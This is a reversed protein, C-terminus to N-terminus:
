ALLAAAVADDTVLTNVYGKRLIARIIPLKSMDGAMLISTPIARLENPTMAIVSDNLPHDIPTGDADLFTGLLDGVAGDARLSPMQDWFAADHALLSRSTMNGCSVMAIDCARARRMVEAIGPHVLLMDRADPSTCYVPATLYSCDAGIVRSFETCMEYTNVSSGVPMGGMLSTVSSGPLRIPKLRRATFRKSAGWSLGLRIGPRLKPQLLLATAEGITRRQTEEDDVSPVVTVERLGFAAQLRQELAVCGALPIEIQVHVLGDARAQGVIRNVRLRTIGLRDAIEQQTMGGIYYYWAARASLQVEGFDPVGTEGVEAVAPELAVENLGEKM